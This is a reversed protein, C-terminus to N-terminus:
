SKLIFNFCKGRKAHLPMILIKKKDIVYKLVIVSTDTEMAQTKIYVAGMNTSISETINKLSFIVPLFIRETIRATEPHKKTEPAAPSLLINDADARPKPNNDPM